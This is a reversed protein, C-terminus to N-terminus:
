YGYRFGTHMHTCMYVPERALVKKVAILSHSERVIVQFVSLFGLLYSTAQRDMQAPRSMEFGRRGYMHPTLLWQNSPKGVHM